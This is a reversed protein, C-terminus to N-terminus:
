PTGEEGFWDLDEDSFKVIDSMEAMRLMRAKHAQADKIFGPRINPDFSIVRKQYERTMLAEYTSGCPEPILSIAGFHLRRASIEM